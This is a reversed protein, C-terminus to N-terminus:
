KVLKEVNLLLVDKGGAKKLKPLVEWFEKETMVSHVAVEGKKALPLVTPADMAPLIKEIAALDKEKCNLMVYKKDVAAQVAVIRGYLDKLLKQDKISIKPSAILVAESEFIPPDLPVLGHAELTSGTDVIDAIAACLGMEPAIEASGSIEALAVKIGLKQFFKKTSNPYETGITMGKLDKVSKLKGKPVAVVLRCKGFGLTSIEKVKAGSEWVVNQGVIGIDASGRSVFAPIDDDRLLVVDAPFDACKRVLYQGALDFNLGIKKLLEFSQEALRGKKQIAIKLRTSM